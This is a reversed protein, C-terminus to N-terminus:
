YLGLLIQERRLTNSSSTRPVPVREYFPHLFIRLLLPNHFWRRRREGRREDVIESAPDHESERQRYFTATEQTEDLLNLIEGDVNRSVYLYRDPFTVLPMLARFENNVWDQIVIIGDARARAM